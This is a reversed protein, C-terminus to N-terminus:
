DFVSPAKTVLSVALNHFEPSYHQTLFAASEARTAAVVRARCALSLMLEGLDRMDQQQLESVQKRTEFELVDLCGVWNVRVRDGLMHLVRNPHINQLAGGAAHVARLAGLLQCVMSWLLRESLLGGPKELFRQSLTQAGPHFVSVFFLAGQHLFAQ